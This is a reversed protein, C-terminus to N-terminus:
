LKGLERWTQILYIWFDRRRGLVPALEDLRGAVEQPRLFQWVEGPRAERLIWAALPIWEEPTACQLKHRLSAATEVRDWAFSLPEDDCRTKTNTKSSSIPFSEM